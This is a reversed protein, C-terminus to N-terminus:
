LLGIPSRNLEDRTTQWNPLLDSILEKFRDNHHREVLHLMEHVVVYELCSPSKKALELNLWIRGAKRNCSGWRTKMKRVGWDAIKVGIRPEWETIVAPIQGKLKKRYWECLVAERKARDSGPRVGLEITSNNSLKVTPPRNIEVVKLRYRRGQFYHSEGTVMERRSQRAQNRFADQKKRIWGIRSIIALRVADKNLHLPAAVRVRGDPPYVALHLNKINKRVVEVPIGMVELKYEEIIVSTKPL